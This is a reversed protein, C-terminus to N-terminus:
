PPPPAPAPPPPPPLHRARRRVGCGGSALAVDRWWRLRDRSRSGHARARAPEGRVREDQCERPEDHTPGACRPPRDSALAASRSRSPDDHGIPGPLIWPDRDALASEYTHGTSQALACSTDRSGRELGASQKETEWPDYDPVSGRGGAASPDQM